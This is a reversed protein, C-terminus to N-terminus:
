SILVATRQCMADGDVALRVLFHGDLLVLDVRLDLRVGPLRLLGIPRQNVQQQIARFFDQNHTCCNALHGDGSEGDHRHRGRGIRLHHLAAAHSGPGPKHIQMHAQWKPGVLSWPALQYKQNASQGAMMWLAMPHQRSADVISKSVTADAPLTGDLWWDGEKARIGVFDIDYLATSYSKKLDDQALIQSAPM